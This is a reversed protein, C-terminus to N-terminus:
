TPPESRRVEGLRVGLDAARNMLAVLEAQDRVTVVTVGGDADWRPSVDDFAHLLPGDWRGPFEVQYAM